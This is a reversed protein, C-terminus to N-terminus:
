TIKNKIAEKLDDIHKKMEKDILMTWAVEYFRNIHKDIRDLKELPHYKGKIIDYIPEIVWTFVRQIFIDAEPFYNPAM